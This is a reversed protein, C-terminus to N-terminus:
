VLPTYNVIIDQDQLVDFDTVPNNYVNVRILNACRNLKAISTISNNDMVVLNLQHLGALSDINTLQNNSGNISVLYYGATYAPLETVANYSFDFNELLYLESLSTIDLVSNNSINLTILETLGALLDVETLTNYSVNLETLHVLSDLGTLLGIYNHSADLKTLSTVSALNELSAVSNHSINLEKLEPLVAVASLSTVANHSLDLVQLRSLYTLPTINKLTNNSLNLHTLGSAACLPQISSLQCGSLTLSKLNPLSAIITLDSGSVVADTISLETLKSLSSLVQLNDFKGNAITLKELGTLYSLGSYDTTGEPVTLETINWLDSSMMRDGESLGLVQRLHANLVPDELTIEEVVGGVTYSFLMRPSVLGNEGVAFAYITNNGLALPISGQYADTKVSPYTNTTSVYLKGSEASVEVNIFQSYFNPAPSVTPAAPRLAELQERIQPDAVNDLMAAADLLKDQEVYIKSLAIYLDLSGSDAIANSLTYEAKTYNGSSRYQEALELAVQEDDGAHRYAQQYLWSAAAHNDNREFFRASRLLIDRTFERDYIFLYWFISLLVLIIMLIPLLRKLPSKM